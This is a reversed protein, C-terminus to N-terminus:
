LVERIDNAIARANEKNIDTYPLFINGTIGNNNSIILGLKKRDGLRHSSVFRAVDESSLLSRGPRYDKSFVQKSFSYVKLPKAESTDSLGKQTDVKTTYSDENFVGYQGSRTNIIIGDAMKSGYAEQLSQLLRVDQASAKLQGSPHNHVFYIKDPNMRNVAVNLVSKNVMTQAYHGMGLHIVTPKGRKVLVAFANEISEDELQKFIYAVDSYSKIKNVGSFEFYKNETFIREVDCTEGDELERLGKFLPSSRFMVTHEMNDGVKRFMVRDEIKADAENFIVFNRAGDARGGSMAEAPYSIGVYGMDAFFQSAAKAGGVYASVNNYLSPITYNYFKFVDDLEQKLDEKYAQGQGEALINFLREKVTNELKKPVDEDWHLYNSDNDDPIEVTYLYRGPVIKLDGSRVNGLTHIVNEWLEKLKVNDNEVLGSYREAAHRMDRLRGHHANYLDMIIRWPNYFDESDVISGKFSLRPKSTARGYQRGIGEVDTVYTGWGFAQNGEGEGMHSHDFMDFEAGSGHYFSRFRTESETLVKKEM